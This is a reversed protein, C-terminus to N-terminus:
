FSSGGGFSNIGKFNYEAIERTWTGTDTFVCDGLTITSGIKSYLTGTNTFTGALLKLSGSNEINSINDIIRYNNCIGDLEFIGNNIITGAGNTIEQNPLITLTGNNLIGSNDYMTITGVTLSLSAGTGIILNTNSQLDLSGNMSLTGALITMTDTVVINVSDCGINGEVNTIGTNFITFLALNLTGSPLINFTGLNTIEQNTVFTSNLNCEGSIEISQAGDPLYYNPATHNSDTFWNSATEFNNDSVNLFYLDAM